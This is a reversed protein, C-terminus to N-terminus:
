LFYLKYNYFTVNVTVKRRKTLNELFKFDNNNESILGYDNESTNQNIKAKLYSIIVCM